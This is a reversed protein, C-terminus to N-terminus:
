PPRRSQAKFHEDEILEIVRMTVLDNLASLWQSLAAVDVGARFLDAARRRVQDAARAMSHLDRAAAIDDILAESDTVRLGLLDAHGILGFLKGDSETLVLWHARRKAMLVRARHSPADASISLPAGIMSSAAPDDLSGKEFTVRHILNRLTVLGLPM